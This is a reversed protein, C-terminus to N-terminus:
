QGCPYDSGCMSFARVDQDNQQVVQAVGVQTTIATLDFRWVDICQRGTSYPELRKVDTKCTTGSRLTDYEEPFDCKESEPSSESRPRVAVSQAAKQAAQEFHEDTVQLYHKAAITASNGIWECVVHIPFTEALETERTARLNQFLKPWPQLGARWIIKQFTTRLNQRTSRYRTILYETGPEAQEWAAELHPRLEPFIPLVRSEKGPHHETKSSHVRMRGREWDIDEWRLRLHESPCRLGGYRSLAFILRWQADPCAELVREADTRSIFHDRTSNRRIGAKLDEFPNRNVLDKRVATRFFQKAVGCRRAITNEALSNRTTTGEALWLRWEDADGPTIERLPKDPGFFRTLDGRVINYVALTGPKVDTRKSIYLDIFPGLTTVSRSRILGVASLKDHLTSDLKSVWTAVSDELPQQMIAASNLAEVKRAVDEAVKRSVKGLRITRRKRDAAKFLIRRNGRPDTAISAM